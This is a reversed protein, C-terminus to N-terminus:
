FNDNLVEENNELEGTMCNREGSCFRQFGRYLAVMAARYDEGDDDKWQGNDGDKSFFKMFACQTCPLVFFDPNNMNRRIYERKVSFPAAKYERNTKADLLVLNKLNDEDQITAVSKADIHEIDWGGRFRDNQKDGKYWKGEEAKYMDFRFREKRNNCFVVNLLVFLKRLAERDVESYTASAIGEPFDKEINESIMKAIKLKFCEFKGLALELKTRDGSESELRWKDYCDFLSKPQNSTFQGVWGLYNYLEVDNYCSKMWWYRHLVESWVEKLKAARQDKRLREFKENKREFRVRREIANYVALRDAKMRESGVGSIMAFILDIRTYSQCDDTFFMSWFRNSKLDSEIVEWEKSIEIKEQESLGGSEVMFMAKILESSTLPIKGSNLRKFVDQELVDKPIRYEIFAVTKPLAGNLLDVLANRKAAYEEAWDNITALAARRFDANISKDQTDKLLEELDKNEHEYHIRWPVDCGLAMCILTITTLRQQGDVVKWRDVNEVYKLVLPQLCYLSSGSQTFDYLDDLLADVNENQWRYGRQYFPITFVRGKLGSVPLRELYENEREDM